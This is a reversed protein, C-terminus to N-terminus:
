QRIRLKQFLSEGSLLSKEATKQTTKKLFTEEENHREWPVM